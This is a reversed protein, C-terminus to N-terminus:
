HLTSTSYYPMNQLPHSDKTSLFDTYSPMNNYGWLQQVSNIESLVQTNTGCTNDDKNYHSELPLMPYLFSSKLLSTLSPKMSNLQQITSPSGVPNQASASKRRAQERSKLRAERRSATSKSMSCNSTHEILGKISGDSTNNSRALDSEKM